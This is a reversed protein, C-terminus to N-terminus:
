AIEPFIEAFEDFFGRTWSFIDRKQATCRRFGQIKVSKQCNLPDSYLIGSRAFDMCFILKHANAYIKAPRAQRSEKPEIPGHAHVEFVLKQCGFLHPPGVLQRCL